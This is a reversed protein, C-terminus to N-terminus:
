PEGVERTGTRQNILFLDQPPGGAFSTALRALLDARDSAENVTVEVEPAAEAFGAILERYTRLEEPEGFM